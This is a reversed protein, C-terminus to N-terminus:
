SPSIEHEMRRVNTALRRNKLGRLKRNTARKVDAFWVLMRRLPNLTHYRQLEQTLLFQQYPVFQDMANVPVSLPAVLESDERRVYYRNIGDFIAFDYDADVLIQEWAQHNAISTGPRTSEVLVVRPRWTRFNSGALVQREHGEVDISLFDVTRSVHQEFLQALTLVPVQHNVVIYGRARYEAALERDFTSLTAGNVVEHFTMEGSRDSIGASLNIDTPRHAAFLMARSPIPEVNIGQWGLDSFHKTVSDVEPHNAGVDIFFGDPRDGFIRRLLVDEHNYAYSIM